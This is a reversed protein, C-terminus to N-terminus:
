DRPDLEKGALYDAYQPDLQVNGDATIKGITPVGATKLIEVIESNVSRGNRRARAEIQDYLDEPLRLAYNKM